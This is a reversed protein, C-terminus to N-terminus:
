RSMRKHAGRLEKVSMYICIPEDRLWGDMHIDEGAGVRVWGDVEYGSLWVSLWLGAGGMCALFGYTVTIIDKM